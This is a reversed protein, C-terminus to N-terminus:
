CAFEMDEMSLRYAQRRHHSSWLWIILTHIEARRIVVKRSKLHPVYGGWAKTEESYFPSLPSEWRVPSQDLCVYLISFLTSLIHLEPM